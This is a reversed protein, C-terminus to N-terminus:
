KLGELLCKSLKHKIKDRYGSMESETKLRSTLINYIKEYAQTANSNPPKIKKYWEKFPMNLSSMRAESGSFVRPTEIFKVDSLGKNNVRIPIFNHDTIWMNANFKSLDNNYNDIRDNGALWGAVYYNTKEIVKWIENSSASKVPIECVDVQDDNAYVEEILGKQESFSLPNELVKESSGGGKVLIILIKEAQTEGLKNKAIQIMKDHGKHWPQARGIWIIAPTRNKYFPSYDTKDSVMHAAAYVKLRRDLLFKLLYLQYNADDMNVNINEEIDNFKEKIKVIAQESKRRSDPDLKEYNKNYNKLISFLQKKAIKIIESAKKATESPELITDNNSLIKYLKKLFNLENEQETLEDNYSTESSLKKIMKNLSAAHATSLGLADLLFQKNLMDELVGLEMRTAWTQKKLDDFAKSTGKVEFIDGNAKKIRLVVGEIPSFNDDKSFISPTKEAFDDLTKQLKQRLVDLFAVAKEKEPSKSRSSIIKKLNEIKEESSLFEEIDGVEFQMIGSLKAHKENTYIVWEKTSAKEIYSLLKVNIEPKPRVWQNNEDKLWSKFIVFAGKEGFKSKDYKTAVFTVMGEDDGVHTSVPFIEADYRFAGVKDFIKSLVKQFPKFSYLFEFSKKFDGFFYENSLKSLYNNSTIEGSNSTEIFFEKNENLGFHIFSSDMKEVVDIDSVSSLDLKKNKIYPILEQLLELFDKNNFQSPGFFRGIGERAM